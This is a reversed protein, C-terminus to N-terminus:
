ITSQVEETTSLIKIDQEDAGLIPVVHSFCCCSKSSTKFINLFSSGTITTLKSHILTLAKPVCQWRHPHVLHAPLIQSAEVADGEVLGEYLAPRLHLSELGPM